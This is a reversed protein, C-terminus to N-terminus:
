RLRRRSIRRRTRAGFSSSTFFLTEAYRGTFVSLSRAFFAAQVIRNVFLSLGVALPLRLSDSKDQLRGTAQAGAGASACLPALSKALMRWLALATM